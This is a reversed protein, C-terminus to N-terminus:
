NLLNLFNLVFVLFILVFLFYPLLRYVSYNLYEFLFNTLDAFSVSLSVVLDTLLLYLYLSLYLYSVLSPSYYSPIPSNASLVQLVFCVFSLLVPSSFVVVLYSYYLLSPGASYVSPYSTLDVFSVSLSVTLDTLLLYLYLSLYLYSVLSPSYYSPIPSNASLVQLVFCVFSLLEPFSFVVVLYSYCLLSPGASYVSPYSTLDAFSVSLSVVLDTLLLYLYLSLYLYSVLSPSYYSPIPSNASLVQLVFCVFSLLM